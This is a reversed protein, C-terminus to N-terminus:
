KGFWRIFWGWPASEKRERFILGPKHSDLLHTAIRHWDPPDALELRRLGNAGHEARLGDVYDGWLQELELQLDITREWDALSVDEAARRTLWRLRDGFRGEIVALGRRDAPEPLSTWDIM